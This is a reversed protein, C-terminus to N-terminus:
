LVRYPKWWLQFSIKWIRSNMLIFYLKFNVWTEDSAIIRNEKSFVKKEWLFVDSLKQFFFGECEEPLFAIKYSNFFLGLVIDFIIKPLKLLYRSPIGLAISAPILQYIRTPNLVKMFFAMLSIDSSKKQYFGQLFDHFPVYLFM